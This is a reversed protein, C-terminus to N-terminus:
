WITLPPVCHAAPVSVVVDDMKRVVLGCFVGAHAHLLPRRLKGGERSERAVARHDLLGSPQRLLPDLRRFFLLVLDVAPQRFKEFGSSGGDEGIEFRVPPLRAPFVDFRRSGQGAGIGDFPDEDEAVPVFDSRSKVAECFM